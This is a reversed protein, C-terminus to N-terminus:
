AYESPKKLGWLKILIFGVLLGGLHAFHAIGSDVRTLGNFLELAGYFGVFYKAKIPIPPFLLMIRRNPYMMGFGLLIGFVAGSAGITYGSSVFLQIIGAGIGTLFYYILFRKTGWLQELAQGFIWLAFLNFFIHYFDAHLFMYTVLQWPLFGDGFPQLVLLPALTSGMPTWGSGFINITALFFIGNWILLYKIAPPFFSFQTNPSFQNL